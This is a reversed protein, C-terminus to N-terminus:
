CANRVCVSRGSARMLRIMFDSSSTLKNTTQKCSRSREILRRYAVNGHYICRDNHNTAEKSPIIRAFSTGWPNNRHIKINTRQAKQAETQGAQKDGHRRFTRMILASAGTSKALAHSINMRSSVSRLQHKESCFLRRVSCFSSTCVAMRLVSIKSKRTSMM